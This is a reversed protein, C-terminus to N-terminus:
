DLRRMAHTITLNVAQWAPLFGSLLGIALGSGIVAAYTTLAPEFRTIFGQTIGTLDVLRLSEGMGVGLVVGVLSIFMAEGVVLILITQRSFGITKLIAVERMRERVTMAMTSVAVLLMTFVVVSAVSGIITQINGLMAVFGLVFAKETETKTENPSNRFMEDITQEIVPVSAMDRAKVSFAGSIAPNGMAENLYDFHFYMSEQSLPDYFTGVLLLDLDVPFITGQLVIRDGVKWQYREALKTSAVCATRDGIFAAKEEPSIIQETYINFIEKPDVAFNAFLYNPDKYIGNFWQLTSVHEVGPVRKIKDRYALPLIDAISTAPAVILRLASDADSVPNLLQEMFTLLAMLLFLSFGISLMTLGTRRKNRLANKWIFRRLTM